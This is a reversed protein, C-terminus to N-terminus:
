ALSDEYKAPPRPQPEQQPNPGELEQDLLKGHGLCAWHSCVCRRGRHFDPDKARGLVLESTQPDDEHTCAQSFDPPQHCRNSIPPPMFVLCAPPAPTPRAPSSVRGSSSRSTQRAPPPPQGQLLVRLQLPALFPSGPGLDGCGWRSPPCVLAPAARHQRGAPNPAVCRHSCPGAQDPFCRVMAWGPRATQERSHWPVRALPM